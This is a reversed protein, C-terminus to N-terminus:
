RHDGVPAPCLTSGAANNESDVRGLNNRKCSLGPARHAAFWPDLLAPDHLLGASAGISLRATAQTPPM